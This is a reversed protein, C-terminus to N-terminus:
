RSLGLEGSFAGWGRTSLGQLEQCAVGSLLVWRHALKVDFKTIGRVFYPYEREARRLGEEYDPAGSGLM